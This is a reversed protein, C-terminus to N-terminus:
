DQAALVRRHWATLATGLLLGLVLGVLSDIAYHFGGYITAVIIGAAVTTVFIGLRRTHRIAMMAFSKPPWETAPCRAGM